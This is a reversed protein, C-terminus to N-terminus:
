PTVLAKAWQSEFDTSAILHVQDVVGASSVVVTEGADLRGDLDADVYSISIDSPAAASAQTYARNLNEGFAMASRIEHDLSTAAAEVTAASTRDIVAQYATIGIGALVGIIVLTVVVEVLTFARSLLNRRMMYNVTDTYLPKALFSLKYFSTRKGVLLLLFGQWIAPTKM